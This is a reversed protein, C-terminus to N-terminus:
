ERKSVQGDQNESLWEWQKLREELEQRCDFCHSLHNVMSLHLQRWDGGAMIWDIYYDFISLCEECTLNVAKGNEAELMLLRWLPRGMQQFGEGRAKRYGVALATM